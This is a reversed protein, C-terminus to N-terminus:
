NNNNNNYRFHSHSYGRFFLLSKTPNVNADVWNAWTTMAKRFAEFVNLKKYVQGGEKYYDERCFCIELDKLDCFEWWSLLNNTVVLFDILFKVRQLDEWADVLARHQFCYYRCNQLRPCIPEDHRSPSIREGEREQSESERRPGLFSDCLVWSYM